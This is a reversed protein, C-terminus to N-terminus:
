PQSGLKAEADDAAVALAHSLERAEAISMNIVMRGYGLIVAHQDEAHDPAAPFAHARFSNM